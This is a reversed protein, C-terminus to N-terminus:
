LALSSSSHLFNVLRIEIALSENGTRVISPGDDTGRVFMFNYKAMILSFVLFYCIPSPHSLRYRGSPTYMSDRRPTQRRGDDNQKAMMFLVAVHEDSGTLIRIRAHGCMQVLSGWSWAVHATFAQPRQQAPALACPMAQPRTHAM